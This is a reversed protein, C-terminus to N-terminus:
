PFTTPIALPSSLCAVRNNTLSRRAGNGSMGSAKRSRVKAKRGFGVRQRGQANCVQVELDLDPVQGEAC